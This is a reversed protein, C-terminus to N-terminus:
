YSVEYLSARKDGSGTIIYKDSKSIDCSLVSNMERAQFVCQGYPSVWGNILADKGTTIFWPAQM